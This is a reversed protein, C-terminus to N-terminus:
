RKRIKGVGFTTTIKRKPEEKYTISGVGHVHGELYEVPNCRISGVGDVHAYVTDSLLGIADIKGTGATELNAKETKGSLGVSSVGESRVTLSNVYLSDARFNGVGRMRIEFEEGTFARNMRINGVYGVQISKLENIRLKIKLNNNGRLRNDSSLILQGEQLDYRVQDVLNEDGNIEISPSADETQEISIEAHLYKGTELYKVAADLDIIKQSPIGNGRIEYNKTISAWNGRNHFWNQRFGRLGFSFFLVLAVIWIILFTWKVSQNMPKPKSFLAVIGYMIAVVPIGILLIGAIMMLVPHKDFFFSPLFGLAGGGAGLLGGGVGLFVAILVIAVIFLAFLLPLGVLCGLGALCVKFFSVFLDVVGGVCGKPQNSAAPASQSAVMKGINDVTIPKGQMQLKQEATTAAPVILWAILYALIVWVGFNTLFFPPFFPGYFNFFKLSSLVFPLIILILRIAVVSWGFYTAIGSCVGGLLKDEMNRFFKKKGKEMETLPTQREEKTDDRDAFDAPKGVRSIVEEVHELTIVQYGLRTKESFLEEIRAEFDAIIEAAGDEKRFYIRLNGLYNDLLRYADDDITFVRGNLNVNLTQKM